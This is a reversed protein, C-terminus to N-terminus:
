QHYSFLDKRQQDTLSDMLGEPMLSQRLFQTSVIENRPIRREGAGMQQIVVADKDERVFFSDLLSSDKLTIRFIRYGPEIAANPTLINRVLAEPGMSGASSLNPGINGGSSGIQHCGICLSALLKGVEVDGSSKALTLYHRYKEDFAKAQTESMVPPLDLTRLLVASANINGWGKDGSGNLLLDLTAQSISRDFNARVNDESRECSWIRYEALQAQTGRAAMSWAIRFGPIAHTFHSPGSNDLEGNIYIKCLGKANRTVCIHTWMEPVIKKKSVIANGLKGAFVHVQSNFFNIDLLGPAGGLSDNNDMGNEIKIWTEVTFSGTLDIDTSIYADDKGNLQLIHRYQDGLSTLMTNLSPDDGLITQLRNLVAGGLKSAHLRNELCAAVIAKAGEQHSCLIEIIQAKFQAPIQSLNSITALSADPVRSNALARLTSLSLEPKDSTILITLPVPNASQQSALAELAAIRSTLEKGELAIIHLRHSTNKLGFASSLEIGRKLENVNGQLLQDVTSSILTEIRDPAIRTKNALLADIIVKRSTNSNLLSQLL